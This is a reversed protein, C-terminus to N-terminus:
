EGGTKVVQKYRYKYLNWSNALLIMLGTPILGYTKKDYILYGWLFQNFIGLWWSKKLHQPYGSLLISTVTSISILWTYDFILAVYHDSVYCSPAWVHLM